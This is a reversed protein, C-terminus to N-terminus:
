RAGAMALFRALEDTDVQSMMGHTTTHDPSPARRAGVFQRHVRSVCGTPGPTMLLFPRQSEASPATEQGDQTKARHDM